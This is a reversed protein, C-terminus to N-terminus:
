GGIRVAFGEGAFREAIQQVVDAGPRVFSEPQKAGLRLYKDTGLEHYPLLDIRKLGIESLYRLTGNINAADDNLGAILPIRVVINGHRGALAKLNDLIVGNSVGTMATHRADDIAKLDYLFLDVKPSLGLLVEQAAFGCTDVARHIGREGLAELAEGLFEAQCLPEGGSFTVGGGSEEYFIHDKEVESLVEAVTMERGALQRANAPCAEACEGCVECLAADRAPGDKWSLAGHPCHKVCEGCLACRASSYMVEPEAGRGEPNHCWACCLPCGKLFITTRIGPGDHTAYRMINFVLGRVEKRETTSQEQM